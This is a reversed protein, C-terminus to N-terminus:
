ELAPVSGILYVNLGTFIRHNDAVVHYSCSPRNVDSEVIRVEEATPFPPILRPGTLDSSTLRGLSLSKDRSGMLGAGEIGRVARLRLTRSVLSELVNKDYM